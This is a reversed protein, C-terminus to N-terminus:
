QTSHLCLILLRVEKMLKCCVFNPALSSLSIKQDFQNHFSLNQSALSQKHFRSTPECTQCFQQPIVVHPTLDVKLNELINIRILQWTSLQKLLTQSKAVGHVTAWWAGRDMSNELCSDQLPNDNGEGPILQWPPTKAQQRLNTRPDLNRFKLLLYLGLNQETCRHRKKQKAYLTITVM